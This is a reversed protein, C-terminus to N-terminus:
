HYPSWRSRCEKGVRREESRKEITINFEKNQARMGHYALNVYQDLLDNIDTLTKEGSTGRSHLLMGKVISDARKGHQNIKDLNQKLNEVLEIVDEIKNNQLEIKMEELLERSVESFNNVFNLPNKIEHAIGATLEGLSAMKESHILQAQASKLESLTLEIKNKADELNKFDEYRAYAISFSEALTKVLELKEETLPNVDGIYLMGQAFPVFHLYLSEPPESSGQYTEANQVQGIKIMSKTWSIFEEKNWHQKHIQKKRWHEVTDNTIKNSDFSLNLVGLSKGDPTTLYVHVSETKEDVIYVGCRFFPVDLNKLERWIVPTIRNLDESTRMSAIEARVRDLAAQRISEQARAEAEKLDIFRRYTLSLVSSFRRFIQLEDESLRNETWAFIFGEKFPINHGYQVADLPYDPYAIQPKIISYYKNIEDGRLVPFYEKQMKWNDFIGDLVPHGTQKLKGSVEAINGEKTISTTTLYTTRTEEDIRGVGCRWPLVNLLKLEKFFLSVTASLDDPTHMSMARARVKELSAEIQAERAQAEASALDTYRKYAFTFVNSFRNLISKEEASLLGFNSIGIAGNGFSYLNYTLLDINLLRPDQAEGNKLRMNVLDELEKGELVLEFFDETTTAMKKFQGELTPDDHYSMQTITGSMEHSYDYDTFTDDDGNKIDIIANRIKSFGLELLQEYLAKAVKLMEESKNLGLAVTRVKELALQIKGEKAQAEAKQLDLFRTYTQQFVKGFRMLIKNEEDTYPIGSFNEIYLGVNEMLVTTAALGPCRLYFDKSAEPLGPVYSLLENYFKNKEEFNLNTTFFDLGKEKAEEFQNAWVSEFYPHTIKSPIDREDAIWFHWDGKPKYDVVFGAHDINIKLHLFQEYVVRIVDKLEESKQMGMTRSRVRELAAEIQAERAQAEAKQLDLFRTYTLDFVGAFRELLPLTDPPCPEHAAISILGRSFFAIYIIRRKEDDLVNGIDVDAEKLRNRRVYNYEKLDKGSLDIVLSKDKLKWARYLKSAVHREDLSLLTKNGFQKGRWTLWFEIVNESENIIGITFQEPGEGLEKFQQFLVFAADALEDSKHMAMTRARVRELALQVQSERTQEEALAIDNFRRYALDFVNRFRKLIKIQHEDIPQLTSIGIDGIGISFFYYYLATANDLRPDDIQGSNKRFNKWEELQDEKIMGQYFADKASRIQKLYDEVVPHSGYEIRTIAGGTLDSFDYDMFYKQEDYQIHILANRINDFGLKKFEKFSVECISLLDESKNMSMAVARVRELSAEIELERNQAEVAKRKQELEEITEELLIATTKKVKETRELKFATIELEKDADKVAKILNEKQEADMKESQQIIDLINQLKQNM